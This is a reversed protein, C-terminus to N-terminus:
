WSLGARDDSEPVPLLKILTKNTMRFVIASKYHSIAVFKM